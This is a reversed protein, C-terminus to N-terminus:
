RRAKREDQMWQPEDWKVPQPTVKPEGNRPLPPMACVAVLAFLGGIFGLLFWGFGSRGKSTAIVATTVACGLWFILLM